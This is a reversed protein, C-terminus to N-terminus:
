LVGRPPQEKGREEVQRREEREHSEVLCAELAIFWDIVGSLTLSRLRRVALSKTAHITPRAIAEIM